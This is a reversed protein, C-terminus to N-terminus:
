FDIPLKAAAAAAAMSSMKDDQTLYIHMGKQNMAMEHTHGARREGYLLSQDIGYECLM